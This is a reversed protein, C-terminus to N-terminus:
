RQRRDKQGGSGKEKSEGERDKERFTDSQGGSTFYTEAVPAQSVQLVHVTLGRREFGDQLLRQNARELLLASAEPTLGHFSVSFEGKAQNFERILVQAGEFMPPHALTVLTETRDAFSVQSIHQVMETVLEAMAQPQSVRTSSEVNQFNQVLPSQMIDALVQARPETKGPAVFIEENDFLDDFDEDSAVALITDLDKAQDLSSRSIPEQTHPRELRQNDKSLDLGDKTSAREHTEHRRATEHRELGNRDRTKGTEELSFSAAVRTM